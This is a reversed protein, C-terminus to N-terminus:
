NQGRQRKIRLSEYYSARETIITWIKECLVPSIVDEMGQFVAKRVDGGLPPLCRMREPPILSLNDFLSNSGPWSQVKRDIMPDFEEVEEDSHASFALSLGNDFLPALRISRTSKSRLVEINAGHRDRNIILFDLSLIYYIETDWGMRICFEFPTEQPLREMQYYIDIALKSEGPLKFDRSRCLYTEYERGDILVLAHILDYPLHPIELLDLLRDAIIENVCEHGVIGRLSDYDSLKYYYRIGDRLEYAKLFSGATGSSHRIKTWELHRLDVMDRYVTGM